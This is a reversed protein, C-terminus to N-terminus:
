EDACAVTELIEDASVPATGVKSVVIGAATNGFHAAEHLSSGATLALTIATIVTDGAGSVDYVEQAYTPIHDEVKGERSILMGDAGLTVVLNKPQYIEWIKKCVEEKPFAEGVELEIGALQLAEKRNPTMLDIGKFSLSRRPKPDKAIFCSGKAFAQVMEILETTVVGKGYDSFILADAEKVKPFLHKEVFPKDLLYNSPGRERDLRCLQQKQVMVRSKLITPEKKHIFAEDFSVSFGKIINQLHEGYLDPGVWGCLESKAGLTAVNIAVNAAGGASYTDHEVRVVPVPAEPSIRTADGWIYQDLMVDGIVLVKLTKIKELLEKM